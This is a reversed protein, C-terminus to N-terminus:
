IRLPIFRVNQIHYIECLNDVPSRLNDVPARAARRMKICPDAYENPSICGFQIFLFELYFFSHLTAM